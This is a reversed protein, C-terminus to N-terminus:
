NQLLFNHWFVQVTYYYKGSLAKEWAISHLLETEFFFDYRFLLTSFRKLKM